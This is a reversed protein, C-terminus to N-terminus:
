IIITYTVGTFLEKHLLLGNIYKTEIENTYFSRFIPTVNYFATICNHILSAEIM